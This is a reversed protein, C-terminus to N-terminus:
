GKCIPNNQWKALGELLKGVAKQVADLTTDCEEKQIDFQFKKIRGDPQWNEFPKGGIRIMNDRSEKPLSELNAQKNGRIPGPGLELTLIVGKVDDDPETPHVWFRYIERCGPWAGEGDQRPPLLQDMIESSLNNQYGKGKRFIFHTDKIKEKLVEGILSATVEIGFAGRKTRLTSAIVDVNSSNAIFYIVPGWQFRKALKEYNGNMTPQCGMFSLVEDPINKGHEDLSFYARKGFKKLETNPDQRKNTFHASLMNYDTRPLITEAEEITPAACMLRDFKRVEEPFTPMANKAEENNRSNNVIFAQRVHFIGVVRMQYIALIYGIEMPITSSNNFNWFGSVAQRVKELDVCGNNSQCKPYLENINILAISYQNLEEIPKQDFACEKLFAEITRTRTGFPVELESAHGNAINTLETNSFLCLNILASECMFAEDETLGWKIIIPVCKDGEALITALKAKLSQLRKQKEDDSLTTDQDIYAEANKAEKFHSLVRPGEGKGVYFPKNKNTCLAYVYFRREDNKPSLTQVLRNIDAQQLNKSLDKM